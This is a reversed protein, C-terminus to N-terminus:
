AGWKSRMCLEVRERENTTLARSFVLVEMIYGGFFEGPTGGVIYAGVNFLDLTTTGVNVDQGQTGKAAGDQFFSATTGDCVYSVLHVGTTNTGSDCTKAASADDSKYSNLKNSTADTSIAWLGVGGSKSMACLTQGSAALTAINYAGCITIPKDSGSFPAAVDNATMVNATGNFLVRPKAGATNRTPRATTAATLHRAKGSIDNWQSILNSGDYTMPSCSSCWWGELNPISYPIASPPLIHRGYYGVMSGKIISM